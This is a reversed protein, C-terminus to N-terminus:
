AVTATVTATIARAKHAAGEAVSATILASGASVRTVLGSANVTAVAPNSSAWSVAGSSGGKTLTLQQASGILGTSGQPLLTLAPIAKGISTAAAACAAFFAALKAAGPHGNPYSIGAIDMASINKAAIRRLENGKSGIDPFPLQSSLM